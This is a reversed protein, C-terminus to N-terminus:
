HVRDPEAGPLDPTPSGPESRALEDHWADIREIQAQCTSGMDRLARAINAARNAKCFAELEWLLDLYRRAAGWSRARSNATMMAADQAEAERRIPGPHNVEVRVTRLEPENKITRVRITTGQKALQAVAPPSDSDVQAEFEAEPISAVRLATKRQRESLGADEAVQTRTLPPAAGDQRKGDRAGHGQPVQKLLEGCRRIARAQIREAFRHLSSDGAQRAYSALAQAKDAWDKCEDIEDCEALALKANEYVAPLRAADAGPITAIAFDPGSTDGAASM